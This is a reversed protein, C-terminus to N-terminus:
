LFEMRDSELVDGRDGFRVGSEYEPSFASVTLNILKRIAM